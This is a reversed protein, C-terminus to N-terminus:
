LVVTQGIGRKKAESYVLEACVLDEMATGMAKYVTIQETSARGPKRGLLVDGLCTGRRPDIGQLEACGTPPPAFSEATEVFLAHHRPLDVPLEGRPPFYGVSSVHAGPRIWQVDIVPDPSHTALCVVDSGRVAEAADPVARVGPFMAALRAADSAILSALRIERFKRAFSLLRLHERAQVGAGIVTAVAADPRALERVALVAAGATRMATIHTGDMICLPMGTAADFLSILALHSPLGLRINGDFVNVVKVAINTGESWAPMALSFGKGPVRIEPRAPAQMADLALRRFGGALADILKQPSLLRAVDNESLWLVDVAGKQIEAAALSVSQM